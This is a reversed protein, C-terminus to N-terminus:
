KDKLVDKLHVEPHHYREYNPTKKGYQVAQQPCWQLCAFCQHCQHKWVPRGRALAVNSAPCVKACIGCANCKEDARFPRDMGPVRSFTLRYFSTFVIRQWFPGKEVPMNAKDKVARAIVAAKREALKFRKEQEEKPGPGGWPIYNSPMRVEFGSSLSLGRERMVRKLQVLTNSVQGGNTAVAFCYDPHLGKLSDVFRLVPAPVGWIYVPFVLGLTGPVEQTRRCEPMSVLEAGDLGEAVKRAVWLSNGTGTYYFIQAAM